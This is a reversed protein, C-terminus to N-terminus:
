CYQPEIIQLQIEQPYVVDEPPRNDKQEKRAENPIPTNPPM